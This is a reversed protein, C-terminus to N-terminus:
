ITYMKGPMDQAAMKHAILNRLRKNSGPTYPNYEHIISEVYKNKNKIPKTATPNTSQTKIEAEYHDPQWAANILV